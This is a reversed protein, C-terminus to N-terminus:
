PEDRARQTRPAGTQNGRRRIQFSLSHWRMRIIKKAMGTQVIAPCGRPFQVLPRQSRRRRARRQWQRHHAVAQVHQEIHRQCPAPNCAHRVKGDPGREGVSAQFGYEIRVHRSGATDVDHPGASSFHRGLHPHEHIKHVGMKALTQDGFCVLRFSLLNPSGSSHRSRSRHELISAAVFEVRSQKASPGRQSACRSSGSGFCM